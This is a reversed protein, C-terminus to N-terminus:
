RKSSNYLADEAEEPRRCFRVYASLWKDSGWKQCLAIIAFLAAFGIAKSLLFDVYWTKSDDLPTFFLGAFAAAALALLTIIRLTSITKMKSNRHNLM